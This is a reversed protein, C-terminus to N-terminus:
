KLPTVERTSTVKWSNDQSQLLKLVGAFHLGGYTIYIKKDDKGSGNIYDNVLIDNRFNLISDMVQKMGLTNQVFTVFKDHQQVQSLISKFFGQLYARGTPTLYQYIESVKALAMGGEQSTIVQNNKYDEGYHNEYYGVIKTITTDANVLSGTAVDKYLEENQQNTLGFTKSLSAYTNKDLTFKM